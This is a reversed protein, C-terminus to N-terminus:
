GSFRLVLKDEPVAEVLQFAIAPGYMPVETWRTGVAGAEMDM